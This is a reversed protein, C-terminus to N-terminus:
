PTKQLSSRGGPPMLGQFFKFFMTKRNAKRQSQVPPAVQEMPGVVDEDGLEPFKGESKPGNLSPMKMIPVPETASSQSTSLPSDRHSATESTARDVNKKWQVDISAWKEETLKYIKSTPGYHEGTRMSHKMYNCRALDWDARLQKLTRFDSTSPVYPEPTISFNAHGLKLAWEDSPDAIMMPPIESSPLLPTIGRQRNFSSISPKASLPPSTIGPLRPTAIPTHVSYISEQDAIAPSQLPSQLPEDNVNHPMMLPPLLPTTALTEAEQTDDPVTTRKIEIPSTSNSSHEEVINKTPTTPPGHDLSEDDAISSVISPLRTSNARSPVLKPSDTDTIINAPRRRRWKHSLSPLRTSLRTTFGIFPSEGRRRKAYPNVEDDGHTLTADALDYNGPFPSINNNSHSSQAIYVSDFLNDVNLNASAWM